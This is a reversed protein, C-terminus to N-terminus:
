AWNGEGRENEEDEWRQNGAKWKMKRMREGENRWEEYEGDEWGEKEM